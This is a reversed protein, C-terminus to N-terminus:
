HGGRSDDEEARPSDAGGSNASPMPPIGIRDLLGAFRPDDHLGDFFAHDRLHILTLDRQEVARELARFAADREQLGAHIMAEFSGAVYERASRDRLEAVIGRAAVPDGALAEAFGLAGLAMPTRDSRDVAEHCAPLADGARADGALSLCLLWHGQWFEPFFSLGERAVEAAGRFDRLYYRTVAPRFASFQSGGELESARDVAALAEPLRGQVALAESLIRHAEAHDPRLSLARRASAEAGAWDWDGFLRVAALTVLADPQDPDLELAREVLQRVLPLAESPPRLGFFAASGYTEALAAWTPAFASDVELSRRLFREAMAYGEPSRRDLSFVGRLYADYAEPDVGAPAAEAATSLTPSTDQVRRGPPGDPTARNRGYALVTSVLAGGVVFAGAWPAWSRRRSREATAAGSEPRVAVPRGEDLARMLAEADPYREVPAVQLLRRVVADLGTRPQGGEFRAMDPGKSAAKRVQALSSGDFPRRGTLMEYLVVGVSWLDSAVDAGRGEAQEPSMYAATGPVLPGGPDPDAVRAVGFDLLKVGGDRTLLVNSPKVDRHIVGRAHAAALGAALARAVRWAEDPPLPGRAIRQALTEGEYYAFVLYRDGEETRGIEHLTAVNPHDLASAARAEALLRDEDAPATPGEPRLMKLAVTRGLRTDEARFVVGMGGRGIEGLIRFPGVQDGAGLRPEWGSALITVDLPRDLPGGPTAQARLLEDMRGLLDPDGRCAEDVFAQREPPPVDLAADLLADM